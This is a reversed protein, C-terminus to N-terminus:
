QEPEAARIWLDAPLEQTTLRRRKVMAIAQLVRDLDEGDLEALLESLTVEENRGYLVDAVGVLLRQRENGREEVLRRVAGLDIARDSNLCMATISAIGPASCTTCPATPPKLCSKPPWAADSSRTMDSSGRICIGAPTASSAFGITRRPPLDAITSQEPLANPRM